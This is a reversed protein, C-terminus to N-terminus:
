KSVVYNGFANFSEVISCAYIFYKESFVQIDFEIPNNGLFLKFKTIVLVDFCPDDNLFKKIPLLRM